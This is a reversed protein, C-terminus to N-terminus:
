PGAHQEVYGACLRDSFGDHVCGGFSHDNGIEYLDEEHIPM